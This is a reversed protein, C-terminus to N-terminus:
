LAFVEWPRGNLSVVRLGGSAKSGGFAVHPAPSGVRDKQIASYERLDSFRERPESHQEPKQDQPKTEDLCGDLV